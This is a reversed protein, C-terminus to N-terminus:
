LGMSHSEPGDGYWPKGRGSMEAMMRWNMIGLLNKADIMTMEEWQIRPTGVM